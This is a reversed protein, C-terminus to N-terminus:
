LFPFPRMELGISILKRIENKVKEVLEKLEDPNNVIEEDYSSFDIPNGFIIRYKSPLPIMGVPGFLPWFPSVPFAPMNLIKALPKFDFLVLAQEQSGTVGVPIIPVKKRLALEMFGVNFDVLDYYKYYPRSAGASGEPFIQLLEGEDIIIEANEYTGVVQGVRTMFNYVHPLRPLFREVLSRVLRPPKHEIIMSTAIFAADLAIVGGHNPVIIAPGTSPVNEIGFVEVRHWYKYFFNIFFSAAKLTDKRIGFPDDAPIKIQEILEKVEPAVIQDILSLGVEHIIEDANHLLKTIM